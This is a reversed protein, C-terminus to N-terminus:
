KKDVKLWSTNVIKMKPCTMNDVLERIDKMGGYIEDEYEAEMEITVTKKVPEPFHKQKIENMVSMINGYTYRKMPFNMQEIYVFKDKIGFFIKKYKENEEGKNLLDVIGKKQMLAFTGALDTVFVREVIEIAKKTEM